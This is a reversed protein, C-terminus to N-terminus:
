TMATTGAAILIAQRMAAIGNDLAQVWSPNDAIGM